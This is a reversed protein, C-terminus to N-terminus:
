MKVHVFGMKPKHAAEDCQNWLGGSCQLAGILVSSGACQILDFDCETRLRGDGFVNVVYEEHKVM